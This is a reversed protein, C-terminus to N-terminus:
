DHVRNLRLALLMWRPLPKEPSRRRLDLFWGWKKLVALRYTEVFEILTGDPDEVYAFRGSAEGMVFAEASDVTFPFGARGCRRKLGEMGNVEFCLHIFGLDGWYRDAFIKRSARELSQVLELRTAGLLASFAGQREASHALLVRRLPRGGGPLCALDAFVGQRDYIVRDYGLIGRYLELCRDLESVGLLCGAVGGTTQRGRSFWDDGRVVQFILGFPDRLFFSPEGSPDPLVPGLVEAGGVALVAHAQRPDRAKIRACYIGLDGPQVEFEPPRPSRETYQWIELGGGGQLNVALVAKRSQPKGGTYPLMLAAEGEDEFVPVDMGLNRRYWRFARVLDPVGAGIQQIGGILYGDM